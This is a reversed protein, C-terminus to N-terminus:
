RFTSVCGELKTVETELAKILYDCLRDFRTIKEKIPAARNNKYHEVLNEVVEFFDKNNLIKMTTSAKHTANLFVLPENTSLSQQLERVNDILLCLLEHKFAPDSNASFDLDISLDLNLPLEALPPTIYSNIKEQLEDPILPKNIFDTMGFTAAKQKTNIMSSASFAIIPINKFYPDEYTRIHHTSEYGDMEPMQLDMLVMHFIKSQILVLAEKGNQAITVDINRKRLITSAVVQNVQNDEVLLIHISHM